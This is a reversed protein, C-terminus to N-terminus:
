RRYFPAINELSVIGDFKVTSPYNKARRFSDLRNSTNRFRSQKTNEIENCRSRHLNYESGKAFEGPIEGFKTNEEREKRVRTRLKM